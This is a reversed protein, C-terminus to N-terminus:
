RNTGAITKTKTLYGNNLKALNAAMKKMGQSFQKSHGSREKPLIRLGEKLFDIAISYMKTEM